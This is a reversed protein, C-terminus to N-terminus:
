DVQDTKAIRDSRRTLKGVIPVAMDCRQCKVSGNCIELLEIAQSRQREMQEIEQLSPGYGVSISSNYVYM